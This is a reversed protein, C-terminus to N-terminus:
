ITPFTQLSVFGIQRCVCLISSQVLYLFIHCHLTSTLANLESSKEIKWENRNIGRKKTNQEDITGRASLERKCYNEAKDTGNSVNLTVKFHKHKHM